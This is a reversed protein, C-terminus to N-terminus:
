GLNFAGQGAGYACILATAIALTGCGVLVPRSLRTSYRALWVAVPYMPMLYRAAGITYAPVQRAMTLHMLFMVAM